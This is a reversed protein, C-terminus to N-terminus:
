LLAQANYGQLGINKDQLTRHQLPAEPKLSLVSTSLDGTHRSFCVALMTALLAPCFYFCLLTLTTLTDESSPTLRRGKFFLCGMRYLILRCTVPVHMLVIVREAWQPAAGCGQSAKGAAASKLAPNLRRHVPSPINCFGSLTLYNCFRCLRLLLYSQWTLSGARM